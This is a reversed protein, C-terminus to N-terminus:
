CSCVDGEHEERGVEDAHCERAAQVVLEVCPVEVLERQEEVEAPCPALDGNQSNKKSLEFSVVLMPM